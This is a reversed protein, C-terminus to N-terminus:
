RAPPATKPPVIAVVLDRLDAVLQQVEAPTSAGMDRLTKAAAIIAENARNYHTICRANQAPTIRGAEFAAEFDARYVDIAAAAAQLTDFTAAEPTRSTSSCGPLSFLISLAVIPAFIAVFPLRLNAKM